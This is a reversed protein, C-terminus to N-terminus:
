EAAQPRFQEAPLADYTRQTEAILELLNTLEDKARQLESMALTDFDPRSKLVLVRQRAENVHHKIWSAQRELFWLEASMEDWTTM